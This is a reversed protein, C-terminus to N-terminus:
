LYSSSSSPIQVYTSPPSFTLDYCSGALSRVKAAERDNGICIIPVGTTKIIRGLEQSGGRDGASMGDVEDMVVVRKRGGTVSRDMLVSLKSKILVYKFIIINMAFILLMSFVLLIIM